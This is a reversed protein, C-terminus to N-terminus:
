TPLQGRMVIVSDSEPIGDVRYPNRERLVYSGDSSITLTLLAGLAHEMSRASHKVVVDTPLKGTTRSVRSRDTETTVEYRAM